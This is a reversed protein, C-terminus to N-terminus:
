VGFYRSICLTYSLCERVIFWWWGLVPGLICVSHVWLCDCVWLQIILNKSDPLVQDNERYHYPKEYQTNSWAGVRHIRACSVLHVVAPIWYLSSLLISSVYSWGSNIEMQIQHNVSREVFRSLRNVKKENTWVERKEERWETKHKM